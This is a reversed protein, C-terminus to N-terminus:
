LFISIQTSTFRHLNNKYQKYRCWVSSGNLILLPNPIGNVPLPTTTTIMLYSYMYKCSGTCDMGIVVLTSLDFGTWPSTYQSLTQWNSVVSRHNEGTEEVLLVLCRYLHFIILPMLCWLGDLGNVSKFVWMKTGMELWFRSKWWWWQKFKRKM